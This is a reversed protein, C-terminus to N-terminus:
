EVNKDELSQHQRRSEEIEKDNSKIKKIFIKFGLIVGLFAIGTSWFVPSSLIQIMKEM